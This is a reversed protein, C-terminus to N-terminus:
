AAALGSMTSISAQASLRDLGARLDAILDEPNELGIHLRVLPGIERDQFSRVGLQPDCPIALSEFGGWSLGRGFVKLGDLLAAVSAAGAPRLVVGMLGCVGSYDRRWLDHGPHNPRAPSLVRLVEPQEALWDGLMMAARGHQALRAHLTKLGRLALYADDPSVAWGGEYAARALLGNAPGRSCAAGMFVDSHGCVYKTLSQISVDAGHELPKFLVGASWTNDVVTFVGHRRALAAIAAVDQLEFTLSGPSELYILRTRATLMGALDEPTASAPFFRTTVGFRALLGLAFARTPNYACDVVLIEDGTSTLALLTQTIAALGSPFLQAQEAGELECLASRLADHTALGGRGYVRQSEYIGAGTEMLITSGRQIPVVPTRELDGCGNGGHILRTAECYNTSAAM